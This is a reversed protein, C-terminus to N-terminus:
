RFSRITKQKESLTQKYYSIYETRSELRMRHMAEKNTGAVIRYAHFCVEQALRFVCM